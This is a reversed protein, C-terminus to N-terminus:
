ELEVKMDFVKKYTKFFTKYDDIKTKKFFLKKDVWVKERWEQKYDAVINEPKLREDAFTIMDEEMVPFQYFSKFLFKGNVELGGARYPSYVEKIKMVKKAFQRLNSTYVSVTADM